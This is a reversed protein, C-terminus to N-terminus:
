SAISICQLPNCDNPTSGLAYAVTSTLKNNCFSGSSICSITLLFNFSSYLSLSAVSDSQSSELSVSNKFVSSSAVSFAMLTILPFGRSSLFICSCCCQDCTITLGITGETSTLVTCRVTMNDCIYVLALSNQSFCSSTEKTKTFRTIKCLTQNM